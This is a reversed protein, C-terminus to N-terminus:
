HVKEYCYLCCRCRSIKRNKSITKILDRRGPYPLILPFDQIEPVAPPWAHGGLWDRVWRGNTSLKPWPTCIAMVLALDLRM